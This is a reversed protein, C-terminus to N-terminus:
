PAAEHQETLHIQVQEAFTTVVPQPVDEACV